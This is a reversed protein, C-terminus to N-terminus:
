RGHKLLAILDLIEDKTLVNVLGTPMPSIRSPLSEDIESRAVTVSAETLADTEVVIERANVGIPRGTVVKGSSLVYSVYRYKEDVVRSPDLVSELLARTDFRSGVNTLDPGIRGGRDGFVHCKLCSAKALARAGADRDRDPTVQPLDDELQALTWQAIVPHAVDPIAAELPQELRTLEVQLSRQEEESLGARFDAILDQVTQRVLKGGPLRRADQLWDLVVRRQELEWGTDVHTLARAFHIQEEQTTADVLLQITRPLAEPAKLYILLESLERNVRSDQHPYLNLLRQRLPMALEGDPRGHRICTLALARLSGLLPELEYEEIPQRSVATLLDPQVDRSGARALALLATMSGLPDTEACARKRWLEVNQNEIAIRAASRLWRDPSSLYPWVREIATSDRTTHYRELERRLRRAQQSRSITEPDLEAVAAPLEPAPEQGTWRVRYLGSRSGRGGTVFYLAGDPGFEMDCVNLPGGSIFTDYVARYSAGLPILDVVYIRGNQWDAMFLAERYREPFQSRTGFEMGTPSGYGTDLTTPLSDQYYTPWKMTGWRWGYEGGSVVHNLRTPRYWPLGVDWEMDADYTFLEGEANFAVDVQNRFGGAIVEWQNGEPDIRLIGGVRDDQGADHPNMLLKDNRAGRYPSNSSVQEPFTVDNGNVLYIMGDPGLKIQNSGHGYRSRYDLSALVTQEDFQGDGNTDRLRCFVNSNTASVYLSNHAFLVGRCHKFSNEIREFSQIQQEDDFTLRGIGQSDLGLIIRGRDDFTMSIWSDEGDQAWRLLEVEFGPPVRVHTSPQKEQADLHSPLVSLLVLCLVSTRSFWRRM